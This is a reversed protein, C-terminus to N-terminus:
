GLWGTKKIQETYIRIGPAAKKILGNKFDLLQGDTLLAVNGDELMILTQQQKTSSLSSQLQTDTSAEEISTTITSRKIDLDVGNPNPSTGFKVKLDVSGKSVSSTSGSLDVPQGEIGCVTNTATKIAISGSEDLASFIKPFGLWVGVAVLGQRLSNEALAKKCCLLHARDLSDFFSKNMLSILNFSRLVTLLLSFYSLIYYGYLVHLDLIVIILLTLSSILLITPLWFGILKTIYDFVKIQNYTLTFQVDFHKSIKSPTFIDSKESCSFSLKKNGLIFLIALLYFFISLVQIEPSFIPFSWFFCCVGFLM